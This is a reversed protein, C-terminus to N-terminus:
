DFSPPIFLSVGGNVSLVHQIVSKTGANPRDSYISETASLDISMFDTLSFRQGIGIHTSLHPGDGLGSTQTIFAGAGGVVYLDFHKISNFLSVKGYIPTWMLDLNVSYRPLVSPLRSQLQRKAFRVNDNPILNYQFFRVGLGFSDHLHYSGRLGPGFKPFFADNVTVFGMPTIEARRRKLFPKRQVSKVRDESAIDKESIEGEAPRSVPADPPPLVARRPPEEEPPPPQEAAEEKKPEDDSLDLGFGANQASAPGAAVTAVAAILFLLSQRIRM